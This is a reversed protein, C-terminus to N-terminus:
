PGSTHFTRSSGAQARGAEKSVRAKGTVRRRSQLTSLAEQPPPIGGELLPSFLAPAPLKKRVRLRSLLDRIGALLLCFGSPSEKRAAGRPFVTGDIM